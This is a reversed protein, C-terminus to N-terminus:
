TQKQSIRKRDKKKKLGKNEEIRQHLYWCTCSVYGVVYLDCQFHNVVCQRNVLPLKDERAKISCLRLRVFDSKISSNLIASFSAQRKKLIGRSLGYNESKINIQELHPNKSSVLFFCSNIDTMRTSM